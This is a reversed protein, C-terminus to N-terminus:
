AMLKRNNWAWKLCIYLIYIHVSILAIITEELYCRISPRIIVHVKICVSKFVVSISFKYIPNCM